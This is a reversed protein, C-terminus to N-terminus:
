FKGHSWHSALRWSLTCDKKSKKGWGIRTGEREEVRGVLKLFFLGLIGKFYWM